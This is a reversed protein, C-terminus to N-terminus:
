QVSWDINFDYDKFTSKFDSALTEEQTKSVSCVKWDVREPMNLIAPSAM